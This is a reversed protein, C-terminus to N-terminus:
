SFASCLFLGGHCLVYECCSKGLPLCSQSFTAWYLVAIPMALGVAM